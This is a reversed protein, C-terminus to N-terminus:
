GKRIKTIAEQYVKTLVVVDQNYTVGNFGDEIFQKAQEITTTHIFIFKGADQAAKYIRKLAARFEPADFQAPKGLAVSLDYPGIFIGDIGEILCIEEINELFGGTECQPILITEQNCVRFYEELDGGAFDAFGFGGSRTMAVGRQGVPYYKGYRVIDKVQDVQELCPIVLGQAGIDLMKLISDRSHNKVRVLPTIGRVEAALISNMASEVDAPGHETDIILFDLGSLGLCEVALTSNLGCFTGVVAIGQEMKAKMKNKM